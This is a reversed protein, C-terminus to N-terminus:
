DSRQSPTDYMSSLPTESLTSEEGGTGTMKNILAVLMENYQQEGHVSKYVDVNERLLRIKTQITDIAIKEAQAQMGVVRAKKLQQDVDGNKDITHQGRAHEREGLILSRREERAEVRTRGPPLTTPHMSIDKCDKHVLCCLMYKCPPATLWWTKSIQARVSIPDDYDVGEENQVVLFHIRVNSSQVPSWFVSPSYNVISGSEKGEM